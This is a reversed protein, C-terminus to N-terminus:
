GMSRVKERLKERVCNSCLYGGYLREPRRETKSLKKIEIQHLKKMGHLPKKCIACKPIAAKKRKMRIVTKSITRKKFKPM